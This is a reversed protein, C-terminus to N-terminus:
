LAMVAAYLEARLNDGDFDDDTSYGLISMAMEVQGRIYEPNDTVDAESNLDRMIEILMSKLM